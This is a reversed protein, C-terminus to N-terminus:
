GAVRGGRRSWCVSRNRGGQKARYLAQDAYEIIMDGSESDAPFSAIGVSITVAVRAGQSKLTLNEVDARLREAVEFAGPGDAGEVLVAFEEGGIRAALDGSRVVGNLQTAVQRIVQDGFPHGCTDNIRKFYDIDCLILSYPSHRRLARESMAALARDFARRNAIGTLSDKLTMENIQDHARALDLKVAVQAAIMEIMGRCSRAFQNENLAAVILVADVPLDEQSLPVVLVSKYKEFYNLRDVIPAQHGSSMSEPLIRRYKVVQGIVSDQLKFERQTLPVSTDRSVFEFRHRDDCISSIAVLDVDIICGIAAVAARYVSEVGLSSNLTKLGNFVQQLSHRELDVYLHNKIQAFEACILGAVQEILTCHEVSWSMAVERELCLVGIRRDGDGILVRAYFSGVKRCSDSYPIAPSTSRYSPLSIEDRDKLTGLIGEKINVLPAALSSSRSWAYCVLQDPESGNWLLVASSLGLASRLLRLQCETNGRFSRILTLHAEQNLLGNAQELHFPLLAVESGEAFYHNDTKKGFKTSFFHHM